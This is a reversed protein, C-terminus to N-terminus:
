RGDGKSTLDVTDLFEYVGVNRIGDFELYLLGNVFNDNQIPNLM